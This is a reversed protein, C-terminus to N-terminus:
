KAPHGRALNLETRRHVIALGGVLCIRSFFFRQNKTLPFLFCFLISCFNVLLCYLIRRLFWEAFCLSIMILHFCWSMCRWIYIYIQSLGIFFLLQLYWAYAKDACLGFLAICPFFFGKFLEENVFCPLLLILEWHCLGHTLSVHVNFNSEHCIQYSSQHLKVHM